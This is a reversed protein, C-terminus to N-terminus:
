KGALGPVGATDKAAKVARVVAEAIVEAAATGIVNIDAVASGTSLAFITDGDAMTHVPRIARALGDHAMQAVKAAASKDLRANTAVVGITTNTTDPELRPRSLTMRKVTDIFKGTKPDRAGAIIDGTRPDVVDGMANVVAIAGVTVNGRATIRISATGVGSKMCMSMGLIKGVTAGMGAGVNGEKVRGSDANLCAMYGMKKDPRIKHDGISLDFVV